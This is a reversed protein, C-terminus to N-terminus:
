CGSTDFEFQSSLPNFKQKAQFHVQRGDGYSRYCDGNNCRTNCTV